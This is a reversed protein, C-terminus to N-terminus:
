PADKSDPRLSKTLRLMEEVHDLEAATAEAARRGVDFTEFREHSTPKATDATVCGANTLVDRDNFTLFADLRAAWEIMAM